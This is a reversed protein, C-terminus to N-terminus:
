FKKQQCLIIEYNAIIGEKGLAKLKKAHLKRFFGIREKTKEEIQGDFTRQCGYREIKSAKHEHITLFGISECLQRWQAPFDILKGNRVFPGVIWCAHGGPKLLNLCAQVILRAAGWFTNQDAVAIQSPHSGYSFGMAYGATRDIRMSTEDTVGGHQGPYPPSSVVLNSLNGESQGYAGHRQSRGLSGGQTRRKEVTRESTETEGHAGSLSQAYPPSSIIFDGPPFSSLQGSSTGYDGAELGHRMLGCARDIGKRKLREPATHDGHVTGSEYVPSTIVADVEGSRMNALQGNVTGYQESLLKGGSVARPSLGTKHFQDAMSSGCCAIPSDNYPPSSIVFDALSTSLDFRSDGQIIVSGDLGYKRKWRELNGEAHHSETKRHERWCKLCFSCVPWRGQPHIAKKDYKPLHNNGPCRWGNAIKVFKEECDMGFFRVGNAMADLAGCGVGCFPDVVLSGPGIWNEQIAHQYIHRILDRSYRAPHEYASGVIEDAWKGRYLNTWEEVGSGICM